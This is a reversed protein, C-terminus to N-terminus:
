FLNVYQRAWLVCWNEWVTWTNCSQTEERDSVSKKLQLRKLAGGGRRIAWDGRIPLALLLAATSFWNNQALDAVLCLNHLYNTVHHHWLTKSNFPPRSLLRKLLLTKQPLSSSRNPTSNTKKKKKSRLDKEHLFVCMFCQLLLFCFVFFHQLDRNLGLCCPAHWQRTYNKWNRLLCLFNDNIGM